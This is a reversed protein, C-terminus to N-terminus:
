SKLAHGSTKGAIQSGAVNNSTPIGRTANGGNYGSTRALPVPTKERARGYGHLLPPAAQDWAASRSFWRDMALQTLESWRDTSENQSEFRLEVSDNRSLAIMLTKRVAALPLRVHFMKM